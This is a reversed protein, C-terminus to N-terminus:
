KTWLLIDTYALISFKFWSNLNTLFFGLPKAIKAAVIKLNEVMEKHGDDDLLPMPGAGHSLYLVTPRFYKKIKDMICDTQQKPM